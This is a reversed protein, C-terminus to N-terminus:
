SRCCLCQITIFIIMFSVNLVYSYITQPNIGTMTIHSPINGLVFGVFFAIHIKWSQNINEKLLVTLLLQSTNFMTSAIANTWIAESVYYTDLWLTTGHLGGLTGAFWCFSELRRQSETKPFVLKHHNFEQHCIECTRRKSIHLWKQICHLHVYGATGDCQCVSILHEPEYCIRCLDM